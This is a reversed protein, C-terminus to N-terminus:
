YDWLIKDKVCKRENEVEKGERERMKSKKEKEKERMKWKKEKENERM